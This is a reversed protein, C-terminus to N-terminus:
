KYCLLNSKNKHLKKFYPLDMPELGHATMASLYGEYRERFSLCCNPAGAFAINTHGKNILVETLFQVSPKNQLVVIDFPNNFSDFDHV